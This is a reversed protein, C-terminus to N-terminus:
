GATWGTPDGLASWQVRYSQQAAGVAGRVLGRGLCVQPLTGRPRRVLDVVSISIQPPTNAQVAIVYNIYQRVAM